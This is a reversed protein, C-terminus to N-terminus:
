VLVAEHLFSSSGISGCHGKGQDLLGGHTSSPFTGDEM